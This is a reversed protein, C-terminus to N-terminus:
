VLKRLHHPDHPTGGRRGSGRGVAQYLSFGSRAKGAVHARSYHETVLELDRHDRRGDLEYEIRLDPLQLHGDVVPLGYARGFAEVAHGDDESRRNGSPQGPPNLFTQYDRKLEADLVVRVVRAGRAELDAAETQYLRYLQADHALERRKVLGAHYSQARDDSPARHDDLLSQGAPTLVVVRTMEHNVPITRRELLGEDRLRRLESELSEPHSRGKALDEERVVRFTGVTALLETESGRLAYRRDNATVVVRDEGKPLFLRDTAVAALREPGRTPEVDRDPEEARARDVTGPRSAIRDPRDFAPVTSGALGAPEPRETRSDDRGRSV